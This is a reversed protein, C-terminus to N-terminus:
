EKKAEASHVVVRPSTGKGKKEQFDVTANLHIILGKLAKSIEQSVDIKGLFKSVERALIELLEDKRKEAKSLLGDILDRHIKTDAVLDRAMAASGIGAVVIKKALDAWTLPENQKPKGM